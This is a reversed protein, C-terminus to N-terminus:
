GCSKEDINTIVIGAVTKDFGISIVKDSGLGLSGVTKNAIDLLDFNYCM